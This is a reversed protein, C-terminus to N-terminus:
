DNEIEEVTITKVYDSNEEGLSVAALYLAQMLTQAQLKKDDEVAVSRFFLEGDDISANTNIGVVEELANLTSVGLASVAACIVDEGYDAYDAHGTIKAATFTGDPLREFTINIM